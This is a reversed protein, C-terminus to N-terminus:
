VEHIKGRFEVETESHVVALEPQILRGKDFNLVAFGSRWDKPSDETYDAFQAGNPDALCGTQVGYFTGQYNSIPQVALVHTHGTIINVNGAAQLNAYGANRGGKFRHKIITHSGVWFSWCGKWMPFHDKLHFGQIGEYQSANAALFTEFRADHNGMTWILQAGKSVKEIGEMMEQCAELEERVTPKKDWGIRPFRSISGGDFADGNCVVVSPKFEEICRLLFKYAPTIEDPMFHADSFVIVCGKEIDIGRRVHLPTQEIMRIAPATESKLEIGYRQELSRRRRMVSRVDLHLKEAIRIPSKFKNWAKIFDEDSVLLTM